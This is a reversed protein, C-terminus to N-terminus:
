HGCLVAEQLIDEAPQALYVRVGLVYEFVLCVCPRRGSILHLSYKICGLEVALCINYKSFCGNPTWAEGGVKSRGEERRRLYNIRGEM